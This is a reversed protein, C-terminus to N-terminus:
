LESAEAFQSAPVGLLYPLDENLTVLHCVLTAVDIQEATGAEVKRAYELALALVDVADTPSLSAASLIHPGCEAVHKDPPHQIDSYPCRPNAWDWEKQLARAAARRMYDDSDPM